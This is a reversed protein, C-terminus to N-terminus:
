EPSVPPLDGVGYLEDRFQHDNKDRRGVGVIVFPAGFFDGRWLSFLAPLLKSHTLAGTAGFIILAFPEEVKVPSPPPTGVQGAAKAQIIESVAM